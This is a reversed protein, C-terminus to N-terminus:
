KVPSITDSFTFKFARYAYSDPAQCYTALGWFSMDDVPDVTMSSLMNWPQCSRNKPVSPNYVSRSESVRKPVRLTGPADAAMRLAVVADIPANLCATSCTIALNGAKDTALAPAFFHRQERDNFASPSYLTGMQSIKQARLDIDYWRCGNRTKLVELDSLGAQDVGITHATFLHGNRIHAQCLRTDFSGLLRQSEGMDGKHPVAVPDSFPAVEVFETEFLPHLTAPYIVKQLILRDHYESAVGVFYGYASEADLHMVPQPAFMLSNEFRVLKLQRDRLIHQKPVVFCIGTSFHFGEADDATILNGAIYFAYKDCGLSLYEISEHHGLEVAFFNWETEAAITSQNSFALLLRAPYRCPFNRHEERAAVVWCAAYRDYIVSVDALSWASGDTRVPHFFATLDSDLIADAKGTRKNFTRIKEPTVVLYQELGIAGAVSSFLENLEERTLADFSMSANNFFPLKSCKKTSTVGLASLPSIPRKSFTTHEVPSLFPVAATLQQTTFTASRSSEIIEGADHNSVLALTIPSLACSLIITLVLMKRQM